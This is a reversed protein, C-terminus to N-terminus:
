KLQKKRCKRFLEKLEVNESAALLLQKLKERDDKSANGWLKDFYHELVYCFGSILDQNKLVNKETLVLLGDVKAYKEAISNDVEKEGKNIQQGIKELEEM